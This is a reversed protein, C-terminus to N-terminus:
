PPDLASSELNGEDIGSADLSGFLMAGGREVM